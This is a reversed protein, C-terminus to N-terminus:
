QQLKQQTKQQKKPTPYTNNNLPNNNIKQHAPTLSKQPNTKKATQTPFDSIYLLLVDM